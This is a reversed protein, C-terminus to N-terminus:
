SFPSPTSAHGGPGFKSFKEAVHQKNRIAENRMCTHMHGAPHPAKKKM